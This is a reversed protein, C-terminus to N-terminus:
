TRANQALPALHELHELHAKYHRSTDWLVMEVLAEEGLWPWRGAGFLDDDTLPKIGALLREFSQNFAVRTM